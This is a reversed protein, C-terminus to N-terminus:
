PNREWIEDDDSFVHTRTYHGALYARFPELRDQLEIRNNPPTSLRPSWLIYQIQKQEAQQVAQEVYEPRTIERAWLGDVFLPNRLDLPLYTNLLQAQFFLDGPKTNQALWSFKEYEPPPLAVRGAPLNATSYPFIHRSGIQKLALSVILVWLSTTIFRRYRDFRDTAWLLLIFAPMSIAYIRNWNLRTIIALWLTLGLLALLILQLKQSSPLERRHRWCYWLVCPYTTILLTYVFLRQGLEIPKRTLQPILFQHDFRVYLRPYTIQLYWLHKWGVQAIWHANLIALVLVFAALALFQKKFTPLFREGPARECPLALLLTIIGAVGATQTFFSAIGLLAGALTTRALSRRPMLIRIACLALLASYWHHTADFRGGYAFVLFLFASLLALDRPMIQKAIDFCVWFLILGLLLVSLNTVWIRPGLTHFFALYLFDTGAPTFQFFDRYPQEGHLIRQAYTWFFQQDGDLLYPVGSFTFLNCYLYFFVAAWAFYGIWRNAQEEGGYVATTPAAPAPRM